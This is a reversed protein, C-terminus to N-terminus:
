FFIHKVWNGRRENIDLKERRHDTLQGHGILKSLM